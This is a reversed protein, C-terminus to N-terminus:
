IQGEIERLQRNLTPIDSAIIKKVLVGSKM